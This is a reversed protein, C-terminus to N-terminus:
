RARKEQYPPLEGPEPLCFENVVVRSGPRMAPVLAKIIRLAYADSWDHLVWRLFYVAAGRATQETFFDHSEFRLRGRLREPVTSVATVAPLDQVTISEINPFQDALATALAGTSGGVDVVTATTTAAAAADDGAGEIRGAEAVGESEAAANTAAKKLSAWDYGELM